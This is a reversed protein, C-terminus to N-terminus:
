GEAPAALTEGGGADEEGLGFVAARLQADIRGRLEHEEKLLDRVKERGQGLREGDFSYWSGLKEIIGADVGQDILDGTSCIGEGYLIDFEVKRFPAALKNKVVKLRTRNGVM